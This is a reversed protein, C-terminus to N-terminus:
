KRIALTILATVLNLATAVIALIAAVGLSQFGYLVWSIGVGIGVIGCILSAFVLIKACIILASNNKGTIGIILLLLTGFGSLICAILIFVRTV